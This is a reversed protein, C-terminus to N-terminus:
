IKKNFISFFDDFDQEETTPLDDEKSASLPETECLSNTSTVLAMTSFIWQFCSIQTHGSKWGNWWWWWLLPWGRWQTPSSASPKIHPQYLGALIGNGSHLTVSHQFFFSIALRSGRSEIINLRDSCYRAAEMTNQCSKSARTLSSSIWYGRVGAM